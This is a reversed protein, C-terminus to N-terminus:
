RRRLLWGILFGTAAAGMLTKGPNSSMWGRTDSYLEELNKRKMDELKQRSTDALEHLKRDATQGLSSFVESSMIWGGYIPGPAIM